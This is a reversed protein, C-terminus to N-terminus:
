DSKEAKYDTIMQEIITTSVWHIDQNSTFLLASGDLTVVPCLEHDSTNITEDFAIPQSWGGDEAAISLYLDGRGRGGPRNSAFILYREAPDIFPDAEYGLTNVGEPFPVPDGYDGDVLLSKYINYDGRQTRERDSAFVLDGSQTFSTFYENDASNVPAGLIIPDSWGGTTDSELYGIDANGNARTIFFLRQEDLSLFPDQATYDPTGLVNMPGAWGSGDWKYSVISQWEGHEIGIYATTRDSSMVSCFEHRDPMSISSAGLIEPMNPAEPQSEDPGDCAAM